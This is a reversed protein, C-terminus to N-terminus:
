YRKADEEEGGSIEHLRQITAAIVGGIVAAGALVYLAVFGLAFASAGGMALFALLISGVILLVVAIVCVAVFVPTIRSPRKPDTSNPMTRREKRLRGSGSPWPWCCGWSSWGPSPWWSRWWLCPSRTRRLAFGYLMLAILGAMLLVTLVTVVAPAVYRVRKTDERQRNLFTTGEREMAEMQSLLADTELDDLQQERDKLTRCLEMSHELNRRERELSILHRRMGDGVTHAGSQMQRIEEIPVGLKRLLKIQKLQEVERPGYERYGNQSNRHPKLLGQDEYFRINKKTIGVQAEVENIKM